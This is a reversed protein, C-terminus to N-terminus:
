MHKSFCENTCEYLDLYIKSPIKSNCEKMCDEDGFCTNGCNIAEQCDKNNQCAAFQTKCENGYCSFPFTNSKIMCQANCNALDQFPKNDILGSCCQSKCYDQSHEDDYKKDCDQVCNQSDECASDSACAQTPAACETMMCHMDDGGGSIPLSMSHAGHNHDDSSDGGTLHGLSSFSPMGGKGGMDGFSFSFALSAFALVLILKNM